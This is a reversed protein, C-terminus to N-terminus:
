DEYILYGSFTSFDNLLSSNKMLQVWVHDEQVLHYIVTNSGTGYGSRHDGHMPVLPRNNITLWAYADNDTSSLVHAIFLYTGNIKAVFHSTYVDFNEGQNLLVKDFTITTFTPNVYICM